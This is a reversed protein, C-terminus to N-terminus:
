ATEDALRWAKRLTRDVAKWQRREAEAAELGEKTLQYYRRRRGEESRGWRSRVLGDRELRRLIPYLMGDAWTLAGGSM